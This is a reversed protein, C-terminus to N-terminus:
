RGMLFSLLCNSVLWILIKMWLDDCMYSIIIYSLIYIKMDESLWAKNPQTRQLVNITTTLAIYIYITTGFFLQQTSHLFHYLRNCFKVNNFLSWLKRFFCPFIYLFLSRLQMSESVLIWSFYFVFNQDLFFFFLFFFGFCFILFKQAQWHIIKQNLPM